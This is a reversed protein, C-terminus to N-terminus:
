ESDDTKDTKVVSVHVRWVALSIDTVTTNDAGILAQKYKATGLFVQLLEPTLTYSNEIRNWDYDYHFVKIKYENKPGVLFEAMYCRQPAIWGWGSAKVSFGGEATWEYSCKLSLREKKAKPAAASHSLSSVTNLNIGAKVLVSKAM